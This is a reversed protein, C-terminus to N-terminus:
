EVTFAFRGQMPHGDDALGRWEVVYDGPGLAPPTAEYRTVARPGTTAKFGITEGAGNVLSVATIRMPADFEMAIVSPPETLSAGDAPVTTEKRSHASSPAVASMLLTVVLAAMLCATIPKM